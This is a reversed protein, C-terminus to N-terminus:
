AIGGGRPMQLTYIIIDDPTSSLCLRAQTQKLSLFNIEPNLFLSSICLM